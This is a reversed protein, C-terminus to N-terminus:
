RIRRARGLAVSTVDRGIKVKVDTFNIDIDRLQTLLQKAQAPVEIDGAPFLEVDLGWAISIHFKGGDTGAPYLMACGFEVAVDNCADLLTRLEGEPAMRLVLFGRTGEANPHWALGTPRLALPSPIRPAVRALAGTIAALFSDKTETRLVLPASLSSHLPQPADLDSSM